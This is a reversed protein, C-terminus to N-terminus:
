KIISNREFELVSSLVDPINKIENFDYYSGSSNIALEMNINRGFQSKKDFDIIITNINLEQLKKAKSLVDDVPNTEIAVNPMGDSLVLMIPIYQKKQIEKKLIKLGRDLGEAMPTTGGVSLNDVNSMYSKPKLTNPIILESKTGKFGVVALKDKNKECNEIFQYIIGKIINAKRKSLMSGSMDVILIISAKTKQKRIKERLDQKQIKFDNSLNNSKFKRLATARLTADIAIDKSNKSFKSKVYKGKSSKSVMRSGGLRINKEKPPIKMLKKIDIGVDDEKVTKIEDLNDDNIIGESEKFEKSNSKSITENSNNVEDNQNTEPLPKLDENEGKIENEFDEDHNKKNKEKHNQSNSDNSLNEDSNKKDLEKKLNKHQEMEKKAKNVRNEARERNFPIRPNRSGLVLIIADTIDDINVEERGNFAALTKSTKLIAIDSRHGDVGETLCVRAIIELLDKNIKVTSLIKRANVIREKLEENSDKFKERFESPNKEFEERRSMILIRSEIDKISQSSIQLGIRDSLQGRLDGEDPNMTGVLIFNSPHSLSIGEREINNVGSAAADLLVDVLHDDLLNIEDVYLINNNAKGLIGLDLSKIGETLAKEIDLSGVVMDETAGLPLEVMKMKSKTISKAIDSEDKERCLDCLDDKSEVKCAFPCDSIVDVKPLLDALARVITTKATGKEGKILVGGISPNIANLLLSLKVHEQGVIATFPFVVDNMYDVM